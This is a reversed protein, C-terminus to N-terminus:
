SEFERWFHYQAALWYGWVSGICGFAVMQIPLISIATKSYFVAAWSISMYDLTPQKAYLIISYYSVIATAIAPWVYNVGLFLKSCFGLVMFTIIVAFAIQLNSPQGTVTGLKPDPFNVDAALINLLYVGVIVSGVLAVVIAVPAQLKLSGEFKDPLNLTKRRLLKDAAYAGVFGLLFLVLWIFAELHLKSYVAMRSNVDPAAQFLTSLSASRFSWAAMGAPAALVGIQFGLPTSIISALFGAALAYLGCIMLDQPNITGSLLAFVGHEAPQINKWPLIGVLFVGIALAIILRIKSLWSLENSTIPIQEQM